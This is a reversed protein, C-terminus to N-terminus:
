LSVGERIERNVISIRPETTTVKHNKQIKVDTARIEIVTELNGAPSGSKLNRNMLEGQVIVFDGKALTERECRLALAGFVNIKVRTTHERTKDKDIFLMFSCVDDSKVATKGFFVDGSNGSLIALNVEQM